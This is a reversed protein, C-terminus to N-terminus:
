NMLLFFIEIVVIMFDREIFEYFNDLITPIGTNKNSTLPITGRFNVQYIVQM